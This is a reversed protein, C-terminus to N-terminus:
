LIAREFAYNPRVPASRLALALARWGPADGLTASEPIGSTPGRRPRGVRSTPTHVVTVIRFRRSQPRRRALSATALNPWPARQHDFGAESAANVNGIVSRGGSEMSNAVPHTAKSGHRM